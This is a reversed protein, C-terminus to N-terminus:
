VKITLDLSIEAKLLKSIPCNAKATQAAAEVKGKDAGTATVTTTLKSHTITGADLSITGKTEISQPTIGVKGLESSFAMSFCSSHAAAILEEPNTGEANEFRTAFTYPANNFLGSESSVKGSGEKLSGNWVATASRQIM